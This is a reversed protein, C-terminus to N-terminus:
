LASGTDQNANFLSQDTRIILNGHYGVKQILVLDPSMTSGRRPSSLLPTLRGPILGSAAKTHPFYWKILSPRIWHRPERWSFAPAPRPVEEKEDPPSDAGGRKHLPAWQAALSVCGSRAQKGLSIIALKPIIVGGGGSLSALQITAHWRPAPAAKRPRQRTLPTQGPM